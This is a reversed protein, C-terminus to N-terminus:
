KKWEKKWEKKVQELLELIEEERQDYNEDQRIYPSLIDIIENKLEEPTM